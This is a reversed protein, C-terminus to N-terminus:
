HYFAFGGTILGTRWASQFVGESNYRFMMGPQVYDIADSVYIDGNDPDTNLGYLMRGESPIFVEPLASADNTKLSYVHDGLVYLKEGLPCITLRSYSINDGPLPIERDIKFGDDSIKYLVPRSKILPDGGALVWLNNWADVVMSNPGPPVALSDILQDTVPDIAYLFGSQVGAVMIKGEYFIMSETWGTVAIEGTIDRTSTNIIRIHNGYLDSVYAKNQGALIMHRPSVLGHISGVREFNEIDICEIKGSNNVILWAHDGDLLISQFVDGLRENNAHRFLEHFITDRSKSYYSLSANGWGYNGENIILVGDGKSVEPFVPYPQPNDSECAILMAAFFPLAMFLHLLQKGIHLKPLQQGSRM